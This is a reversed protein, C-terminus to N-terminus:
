VDNISNNVDNCVSSVDNFNAYDDAFEDGINNCLIDFNNFARNVGNLNDKVVNSVAYLAGLKICHVVNKFADKM